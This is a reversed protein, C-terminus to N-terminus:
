TRAGDRDTRAGDRETEMERLRGSLAEIRGLEEAWLLAYRLEPGRAQALAQEFEMGGVERRALLEDCRARMRADVGLGIRLKNMEEAIPALRQLANVDSRMQRRLADVGDVGDVSDMGDLLKELNVANGAVADVNIEYDWRWWRRQVMWERIRGYRRQVDELPTVAWPLALGLAALRQEFVEKAQGFDAKDRWAWAERFVLGRAIKAKVTALDDDNRVVQGGTTATAALARWVGADGAELAALAAACAPEVIEEAIRKEAARQAQIDPDARTAAAKAASGCTCRGDKGHLCIIEVDPFGEVRVRAVGGGNDNGVWRLRLNTCRKAIVQEVHPVNTLSACEGYEMGAPAAEIGTKVGAQYVRLTKWHEQKHEWCTKHPCRWTGRRQVREGCEDCKAAKLRGAADRWDDWGTWPVDLDMTAKAIVEEVKERVRDSSLNAADKVVESPRPWCYSQREYANLTSAPLDYMPLLAMAQRESVERNAVRAQVEEPLRLLRLKNAVTSRDVGLKVGIEAQSWGFRAMMRQIAQAEEIASVDKRQTNESWAALAMQEDSLVQVNVPMAGWKGEGTAVPSPGPIPAERLQRFARLRRHGFALQVREGVMRGVPAQLLGRAYIDAALETIGAEDYGQRTQFPNDDIRDLPILNDM